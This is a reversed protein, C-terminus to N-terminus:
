FPSTAQSESLAMRCCDRRPVTAGWGANATAATCVFVIFHVAIPSDVCDAMQSATSDDLQTASDGATCGYLVECCRTPGYTVYELFLIYFSNHGREAM